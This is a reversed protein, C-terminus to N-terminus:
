KLLNMVKAKHTTWLADVKKTNPTSKGTSTKYVGDYLAKKEAVTLLGAAVLLSARPDESNIHMDLIRLAKPAPLTSIDIVVNGNLDKVQM